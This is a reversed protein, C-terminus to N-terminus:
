PKFIGITHHTDVIPHPYNLEVGEHAEGSFVPKVCKKKLIDLFYDYTDLDKDQVLTVVAGNKDTWMLANMFIDVWDDMPMLSPNRIYTLDYREKMRGSQHFPMQWIYDKRADGDMYGTLVFDYDNASQELLKSLNCAAVTVDDPDIGYVNQHFARIVTGEKINRAGVAMAFPKDSPSYYEPLHRELVYVDMEEYQMYKGLPKIVTM